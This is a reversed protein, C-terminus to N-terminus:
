QIRVVNSSQPIIKLLSNAGGEKTIKINEADAEIRYYVDDERVFLVSTTKVNRNDIPDFENDGEQIQIRM